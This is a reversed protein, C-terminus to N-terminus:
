YAPRYSPRYERAAQLMEDTVIFRKTASNIAGLLCGAAANCLDDHSGPTSPHDVTERGSRVSRRELEAFQTFLRRNDLLEVQRTNLKPLFDVYIQNKTLESEQYSIGRSAFEDTPWLGAYKDGTVERLGYRRLIDSIEGVIEKPSFPPRAEYLLDLIGYKILGREEVHGIALVMSDISGGSPDCFAFYRHERSPELEFRGEATCARLIDRNIYDLIDSRFISYYEARAREPDEEMRRDIVEQDLLPNMMKSTTRIVLVNPDETGFYKEFKEFALGARRYVTTIGIIMAHPVTATGPEIANYTEIDPTASEEDRWFALEDLIALAITRGRPARPNNTMIRLEVDDGILIPKPLVGEFTSRVRRQLAPIKQFYAKTYGYVITAQDRDVAFCAVVAREGPRLTVGDAAYCAAQAAIMSTVSDKGGRRGVLLWLEKVRHGPPDREAIERFFALEDDELPYGYAAKLVVRWSWWSPGVCEGLGETIFALPDGRHREVIDCEEILLQPNLREM